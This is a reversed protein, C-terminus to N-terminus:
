KTSSETKNNITEPSNGATDPAAKPNRKRRISRLIGFGFLLAAASGLVWMLITEIATRLTLPLLATTFSHEGSRDKIELALGSNGSSIRSHVPVLVATNGLAPVSVEFSRETLTIGASTPNVRLNVLADFPLANSLKVPVNSLTGVLQTSENVIPKVGKLLEKDRQKTAANVAVFNVGPEAYKTALSELVRERQYELLYDPQELLPSLEDIQTSRLITARLLERREETPAGARLAATGGTQLRESVPQVWDIDDITQFIRLPDAIDALAGRDLALVAGGVDNQASLALRATLDATGASRETPSEGVMATRAASGTAADAILADFDGITVRSSTANSVNTSDLVLSTLGANQLLSLTASDTEGGAPWAGPRSNELTLLGTLTPVGTIEDVLPGQADAAETVASTDSEATDTTTTGDANDTNGTGDEITTSGGNATGGTAASDPAVPPEFTGLRTSYSFGIPQMLESFGLAAQVAPDADAFQLLFIPSTSREIRNLLETAGSPAATGLSRISAIIRPDIAITAHHQEAADFVQLLRSSHRNLDERTPLTQVSSPLVIPVVLTLPLPSVADVGNWVIATSAALHLEQAASDDASGPDEAVPPEAVDNGAATGDAGDAADDVGQGEATSPTTETGAPLFEARVPYVGSMRSFLMPFDDRLVVVEVRQDENAVTEVVDVRSLELAGREGPEQLEEAVEARQNDITLVVTGASIPVESPNKLLVEFRFESADSAVVPSDPAVVLSPQPEAVNEDEAAFAAGHGQGVVMGSATITAVMAVTLLAHRWQGRRRIKPVRSM